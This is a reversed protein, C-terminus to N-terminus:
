PLTAVGRSASGQLRVLDSRKPFAVLDLIRTQLLTERHSGACNKHKQMRRDLVPGPSISAEVFSGLPCGM